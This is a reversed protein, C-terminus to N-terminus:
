AAPVTRLSAHQKTQISKLYAIIDDVENPAFRFQPMQPHGVMIGEALAEALDEIPYRKDLDRFRPSLPNPSDGTNETAHCMACNRLVLAHGREVSGGGTQAVASTAFLLCVAIVVLRHPM